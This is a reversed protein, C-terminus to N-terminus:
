LGYGKDLVDPAAIVGFERHFLRSLYTLEVGLLTKAATFKPSAVANALRGSASDEFALEPTLSGAAM